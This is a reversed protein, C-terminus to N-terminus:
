KTTNGNIGSSKKFYKDYEVKDLSFKPADKVYSTFDSILTDICTIMRNCMNASSMGTESKLCYERGLMGRRDREEKGMDYVQKIANSVDNISVYDEFIYPTPPSGAITRVQPFIPICWEGCKTYKSDSNTQWESTYDNPHLFTGDEKVFGMQDQIGGTVSGIMMTGAMLSEHSSLGWGEAYSINLTVDVMNYM